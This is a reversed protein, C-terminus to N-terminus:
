KIKEFLSLAAFITKDMDLYQYSGLRGLFYTNTLKNALSLYKLYLDRNEKKPVPYYRENGITFAFPYEKAIITTDSSDALFHKFETIRTFKEKESPYNVVAVNQFQKKNHEEFEFILSRYPLVGFQYDFFEDISGTYFFRDYEIKGKIKSYDTNLEIQILPNDLMRTFLEKYGNKPIGQFIDRFYRDDYDLCVPVRETVFSDLEKPDIGWQKISYHLFVKDYVFQALDRIKGLKSQALKFIPVRSGEGYNNILLNIYEDADKEDFLARISNFNFPLPVLKGDIAAKPKHEYSHWDTFKGIYEIVKKENTHFIHPGYKQIHINSKDLYDFCNGGIHDRRDILLVREKKINAIREALVAGSFGCGVILNQVKVSM